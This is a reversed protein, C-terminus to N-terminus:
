QKGNQDRAAPGGTQKRRDAEHVQRIMWGTEVALLALYFVVMWTVLPGRPWPGQWLGWLSAGGALMLRIPMAALAAEFLHDAFRAKAVAFPVFALWCTALNVLAAFWLVGGRWDEMRGPPAARGLVCEAGGGILVIVALGLLVVGKM